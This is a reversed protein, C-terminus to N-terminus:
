YGESKLEATKAALRAEADDLTYRRPDAVASRMADRLAALKAQAIAQAIADEPSAFRGAAIEATVWAEQGPTLEIKM